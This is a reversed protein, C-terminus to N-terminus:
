GSFVIRGLRARDIQGDAQLIWKGFSDLVPQYGPAGQAIARHALADIGVIERRGTELRNQRALLLLDADSGELARAASM